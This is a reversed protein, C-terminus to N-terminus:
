KKRILKDLIEAVIETQGTQVQHGAYRGYRIWM